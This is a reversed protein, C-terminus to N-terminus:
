KNFGGQMDPIKTKEIPGSPDPAPKEDDDPIELKEKKMKVKDKKYPNDLGIEVSTDIKGLEVLSFYDYPWNYSYDPTVFEFDGGIIFKFKSDDTLDSTAKYYNTKARKKVKFVMWEVQEQMFNDNDTNFPESGHFFEHLGTKHSIVVEQKEASVAIDPMINQWINVLDKQSLRHTFEFMYMVFPDVSKPNNVFDFRPPLIYKKMKQILMSISTAGIKADSGPFNEVAPM